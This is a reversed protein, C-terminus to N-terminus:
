GFRRFPDAGCTLRQLRLEDRLAYPVPAGRRSLGAVYEELASLLEHRASSVARANPVRRQQTVAERAQMVRRLLVQLEDPDPDESEGRSDSSRRPTSM